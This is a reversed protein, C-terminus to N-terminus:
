HETLKEGSLAAMYKERLAEEEELALAAKKFWDVVEPTIEPSNIKNRPDEKNNLRLIRQFLLEIYAEKFAQEYDGGPLNSALKLFRDPTVQVLEGVRQAEAFDLRDLGSKQPMDVM